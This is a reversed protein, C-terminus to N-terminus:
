DVEHFDKEMNIISKGNVNVSLYEKSGRWLNDAVTVNAGENVLRHTLASGIHGAGGTVLINKGSWNM